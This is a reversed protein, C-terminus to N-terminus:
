EAGKAREIAQKLKPLDDPEMPLGIEQGGSRVKIHGAAIDMRVDEIEHLLIERPARWFAARRMLLRRDTVTLRWTLTTSYIALMFTGSSAANIMAFVTNEPASIWLMIAFMAAVIAVVISVGFVLERGTPMKPSRWVLREGPELMRKFRGNM